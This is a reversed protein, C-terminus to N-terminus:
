DIVAIGPRQSQSNVLINGSHQGGGLKLLNKGQEAPHIDKLVSLSRNAAPPPLRYRFAAHQARLKESM